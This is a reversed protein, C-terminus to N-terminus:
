VFSPSGVRIAQGASQITDRRHCLETNNVCPIDALYSHMVEFVSELNGWQGNKEIEWSHGWLHFVGGESAISHLLADAIAMWDTPAGLRLYRNLGRVSKRKLTNRFYPLRGHPHAQISTPVMWLDMIKAPEDLSLAEVTRVGTYGADRIIHLHQQNFRGGPPCFMECTTGTVQEVWSKSEVIEREATLRSAGDLFTHRMTHAGIEFSKSLQQLQGETMTVNEAQRPVYFTGTLGYRSLMDALRRDLPHGDDWSTTMVTRKMM